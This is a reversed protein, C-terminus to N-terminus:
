SFFPFISACKGGKPRKLFGCRIKGCKHAIPAENQSCSLKRCDHNEPYEDDNCVLNLCKGEVPEEDQACNLKICSKNVLKEDEDCKAMLCEHNVAEEDAGCSLQRCANNECYASEICDDNSCCEHRACEHGKVYECQSCALRECSNEVCEEGELCERSSDCYVNASCDIKKYFNYKENSCDNFQIAMKTINHTTNWMLRYKSLERHRVLGFAISDFDKSSVVPGREYEKKGEFALYTLLFPKEFRLSSNKGIRFNHASYKAIFTGNRNYCAVPTINIIRCSFKFGPCQITRSTDGIYIKYSTKNIALFIAEESIFRREEDEGRYWSGPVKVVDRGIRATIQEENGSWGTIRISGADSCSVKLVPKASVMSVALVFAFLFIIFGKKM